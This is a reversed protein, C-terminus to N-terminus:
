VIKHYDDVLAEINDLVYAIDNLILKGRKNPFPLRTTELDDDKLAEIIILYPKVGYNTLISKLQFTLAHSELWHDMSKAFSAHRYADNATVNLLETKYTDLEDNELAWLLVLDSAYDQIERLFPLLGYVNRHRTMAALIELTAVQTAAEVDTGHEDGQTSDTCIGQMHMTEHILVSIQAASRSYLPSVPNYFRVNIDFPNTQDWCAATGMLHFTNDGWYHRPQVKPLIEVTPMTMWEGGVDYRTTEPLIREYVAYAGIEYVFGQAQEISRPPEPYLDEIRDALTDALIAIETAGKPSTATDARLMDLLTAATQPPDTSDCGSLLGIFLVALFIMIANRRNM